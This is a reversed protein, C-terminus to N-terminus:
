KPILAADNRTAADPNFDYSIQYTVDKDTVTAGQALGAFAGTVRGSSAILM